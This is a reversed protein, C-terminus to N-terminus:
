FIMGSIRTREFGLLKRVLKEVVKKKLYKILHSFILEIKVVETDIEDIM